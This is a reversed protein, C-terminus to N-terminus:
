RAGSPAKPHAHVHAVPQRLTRWQDAGLPEKWVQEAQASFGKWAATQIEAERSGPADLIGLRLGPAATWSADLQAAYASALIEEHSATYQGLMSSNLDGSQALYQGVAQRLEVWRPVGGDELAHHPSLAMAMMLAMRADSDYLGENETLVAYLHEWQGDGDQAQRLAERTPSTLGLGDMFQEFQERAEAAVLPARGSEVPVALTEFLQAMIAQSHPHEQALTATVGHYHEHPLAHMTTRMAVGRKGPVVQGHTDLELPASLDLKVRGGLGLFPGQVGFRDSLADQLGVLRKALADAREPSGVVSASVRLQALGTTNVAEQLRQRAQEWNLTPDGKGPIAMTSAEDQRMSRVDEWSMGDLAPMDAQELLGRVHAADDETWGVTALFGVADFTDSSAALAAEHEHVQGNIGQAFAMLQAPSVLAQRLQLALLERVRLGEQVSPDTEAGPGLLLAGDLRDALVSAMWAQAPSFGAQKQTAEFADWDAGWGGNWGAVAPPSVPVQSVTEVVTQADRNEAQSPWVSPVLAALAMAAAMVALRRRPVSRPGVARVRGNEIIIAASM